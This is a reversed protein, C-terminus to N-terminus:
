REGRRRHDSQSIPTPPSENDNLIRFDINLNSHVYLHVHKGDDSVSASGVNSKFDHERVNCYGDQWQDNAEIFKVPLEIAIGGQGLLDDFHYSSTCVLRGQKALRMLKDRRM